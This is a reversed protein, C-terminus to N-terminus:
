WGVVNHLGVHADETTVVMDVLKLIPQGSPDKELEFLQDKMLTILQKRKSEIATKSLGTKKMEGLWKEVMEEYEVKLKFRQRSTQPYTGRNEAVKQVHHANIIKGAGVAELQKNAVGSISRMRASITDGDLAALAKDGLAGITDMAKVAAAAPVKNAKFITEIQRKGHEVSIETLRTKEHRGQEFYASVEEWVSDFSLRGDADLQQPEGSRKAGRAAEPFQSEINRVAESYRKPDTAALRRLEGEDPTFGLKRARALMNQLRAEADADLTAIGKTPLMTRQIEGHVYWRGSKNIAELVPLRYRLRLAALKAKAVQAPVPSGSLGDIASVGADMGEDLRKQKEEETGGYFKGKVWEKAGKAKNKVWDKGKEIKDKGWAIGKQAAAILKDGGLKRFLNVAGNIVTDIAKNIPAQIAQIVSKIKAAIGGLGLLSALFSIAVPLAKALAQEVLNAAGGIAGSAIAGVGDIVANVLGMIQSGREVFFMVVDYIMKCARVFASAPNLMSVLWTVGATIIKTVVFDQVQALMTDKLTTLKDVIFKWIGAVGETALTKFIDVTKEMAAVAKEGLVGVARARLNAYTLGLLQLVLGLIGKLDFHEPLQIGADALTGFLWGMLGSKLHTVINGVFQHLGQKIAAVLNGLFVIPDAIIRDIVASARALVGLLMDKLKLITDVTSGIADKAKDWLGKNADKMEQARANAADRAAAYKQAVGEVIAERRADVDSSLTKFKDDFGALLENGIQKLDRPLAAVQQAVEKQGAAIRAKARALEAGVIDAIRGVVADMRLLYAKVARDVIADLEPPKSFLDVFEDLLSRKDHFAKTDAEITNAMGARAAQEGADFVPDIKGEIGDLIVTVDQKTRAYVAELDGAVKARKAEDAAKGAAQQGTAKDLAGARRAHMGTMGTATSANAQARADGLVKREDARFAAPAAATHADAAQKAGLADKFQPENSRALQTGTIKADKMRAETACQDHRLELEAAPKPAPMAAGADIPAPPPGAPEQPVPGVPKPAAKSADPTENAASKIDRESAQKNAGVLGSLQEKGQNPKDSSAYKEAEGLNGPAAAAIAKKVDAIFKARDFEGPQQAAMKGVQAAKAQSAADNAPPLAAAQTAAARAAPSAHKKEREAAQRVKGTAANFSPDRAPPLPPPAAAAPAPCDRQVVVTGADAGAIRLGVAQQGRQAALARATRRHGYGRQLRLLSQVAAASGAAGRPAGLAPMALATASVPPAVARISAPERACVRVERRAPAAQQASAMRTSM